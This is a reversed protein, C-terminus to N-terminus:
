TVCLVAEKRRGQTLSVESIPKASDPIHRNREEWMFDKLKLEVIGIESIQAGEKHEVGSSMIELLKQFFWISATRRVWIWRSLFYLEGALEWHRSVQLIKADLLENRGQRQATNERWEVHSIHFNGLSLLSSVYTFTQLSSLSCHGFLSTLDCVWSFASQAAPSPRHSWTQVLNLIIIKILM